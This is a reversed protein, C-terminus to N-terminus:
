GARDYPEVLRRATDAAELALRATLTELEETGAAELATRLQRVTAALEAAGVMASSSELSLLAVHAAEVEHDAVLREITAVRGDLLDLYDQRFCAMMDQEQPTMQWERTPGAPRQAHQAAASRDQPGDPQVSRDGHSLGSGAGAERGPM